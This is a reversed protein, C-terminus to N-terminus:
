HRSPTHNFVAEYLFGEKDQGVPVIFLDFAGLVDHEFLYMRQPLLPHAPGHFIISFSGGEGEESVAGVARAEVLALEITTDEQSQLRFRTQLAAQFGQLTLQPM